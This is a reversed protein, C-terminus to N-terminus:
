ARKSTRTSPGRSRCSGTTALSGGEVEAVLLKRGFEVPKGLKQRVHLQTHPEVLSLLKEKAPVAEGELVRRRAQGTAREM